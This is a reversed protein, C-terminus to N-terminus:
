GAPTTFERRGHGIAPRYAEALTAEASALTM